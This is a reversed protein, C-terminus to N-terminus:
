AAVGAVGAACADVGGGGGGAGGEACARSATTESTARESAAAPCLTWAERLPSAWVAVSESEPAVNVRPAPLWIM